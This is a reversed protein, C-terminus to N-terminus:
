DDPGGEMEIAADLEAQDGGLAARMAAGADGPLRRAAAFDDIMAHVGPADETDAIEESAPEEPDGTELDDAFVDLIHPMPLANDGGRVKRHKRRRRKGPDDGLTPPPPPPPPPVPPASSPPSAQTPLLSQAFIGVLGGEAVARIAAQTELGDLDLTTQNGLIAFARDDLDPVGLIDDLTAPVRRHPVGPDPDICWRVVPLAAPPRLQDAKGAAEYAAVTEPSVLDMFLEGHDDPDPAGDTLRDSDLTAKAAMEAFNDHDSM